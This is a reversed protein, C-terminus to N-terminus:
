RTSRGSPIGTWVSAIVSVAGSSRKSSYMASVADIMSDISNFGESDHGALDRRRGSAGDAFGRSVEAIPGATGAAIITAFVGVASKTVSLLAVLCGATVGSVTVWIGISHRGVLAMTLPGFVAGGLAFAAVLWGSGAEDAGLSEVAVPVALLDIAGMLITFLAVVALM